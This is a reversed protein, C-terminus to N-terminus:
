LGWASLISDATDGILADNIYSPDNIKARLEAVRDQRIDPLQKVTEMARLLDARELAEASLSITDAKIPGVAPGAKNARKNGQLPDVSSVKDIMMEM